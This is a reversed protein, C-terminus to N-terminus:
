DDNIALGMAKALRPDGGLAAPADDWAMVVGLWKPEPKPDWPFRLPEPWDATPERRVNFNIVQMLYDMGRLLEAEVSRYEVFPDVARAVASDSPLNDAWAAVESLPAM